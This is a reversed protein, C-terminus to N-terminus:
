RSKNFRGNKGGDAVRTDPGENLSKSGYYLDVCWAAMRKRLADFLDTM